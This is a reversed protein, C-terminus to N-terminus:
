LVLMQKNIQNIVLIISLHVTLLVDFFHATYPNEVLQAVYIRIAVGRVISVSIIGPLRPYKM